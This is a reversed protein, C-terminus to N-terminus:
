TAHLQQSRRGIYKFLFRMWRAAAALLSHILRLSLILATPITCINNYRKGVVVGAGFSEVWFYGYGGSVWEMDMGARTAWEM